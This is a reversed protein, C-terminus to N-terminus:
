QPNSRRTSVDDSLREVFAVISLAGLDLGGGAGGAVL